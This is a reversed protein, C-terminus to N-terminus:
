EACHQWRRRLQRARQVNELPRIVVGSAWSYSKDHIVTFGICQEYANLRRQRPISDDTPWLCFRTCWISQDDRRKGRGAFNLVTTYVVVVALM